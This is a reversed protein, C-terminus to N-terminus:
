YADHMCARIEGLIAALEAPRPSTLRDARRVALKFLTAAEYLRARKRIGYSTRDDIGHDFLAQRYATLFRAAASVFWGRTGPRRYWLGGPRLYALFYGVDLAPDARCLGALDVIFVREGRFLLQGPKFGGHVPAYVEPRLSRLRSALERALRQASDALLPCHNAILAAREAARLAERAATGLPRPLSIGSTHLRALARGVARLEAAPIDLQMIQGVGRPHRPRLVQLGTRVVQDPLDSGVAESLSLGLPEAVGLPRPIIPPSGDQGHAAYLQEAAAHVARARAPDDHVRGFMTLERRLAREGSRKELELEYRIVCRSGPKYSVPEARARRIHWAPDLLCARAALELQGVLPDRLDTSLSAALSSLRRDAPFVEVALGLSPMAVCGGVAEEPRAHQIDPAGFRIRSGELAGEDISITVWLPLAPGAAARAAGARRARAACLVTLGRGPRRRLYRICLGTDDATIATADARYARLPQRAARLVRLALEPLAAIGDPLAAIDVPLGRAPPTAGTVAPGPEKLTSVVQM